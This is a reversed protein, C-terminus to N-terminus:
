CAHCPVNNAGNSRPIAIKSLVNAGPHGLRRHWTTATVAVLVCPTTPPVAPLRLTYLPGSSNCRVIVNRSYLYKVSVGFLDFEMSCHNDTTLCHVSLLNDVIGSTLLINNLYLSDPLVSDESSTVAQSTSHIWQLCHYIFTM